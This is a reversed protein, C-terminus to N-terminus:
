TSETRTACVISDPRVFFSVQPIIKQTVNNIDIYYGYSLLATAIPTHNRANSAVIYSIDARWEESSSSGFAQRIVGSRDQFFLRRDGNPLVLAAISTDDLISDRSLLWSASPALSPTVTLEM